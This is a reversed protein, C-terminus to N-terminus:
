AGQLEKRVFNLAGGALLHKRQRDSVDLILSIVEGNLQAPIEWEKNEVLSRVGPLVLRDGEELRDYDGPDKFTLPLIGFNCLNAKHIRAFSKAMKARVGLYRPALAAHERSSGQGYNEGGVVVGNGAEKCRKHFEPVVQYYVFESIAEINSRLPLVKTGAPMITDTSINDGVTIVVRVELTDPLPAMHPLPRINPGRIVETNRNEDSPHIISTEDIVYNKPDDIWPYAMEEALERPDTIVGRLAAAAATEPSCLYVQDDKTGSRGPFNRPFTRLSVEGTGPAQGMGICGLCGSEHIRAGALLLSLAGGEQAVNELVQRSGPNVHFSTDPHSHRGKM